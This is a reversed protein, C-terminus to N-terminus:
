QRGADEGMAASQAASAYKLLQRPSLPRDASGVISKTGRERSQGPSFPPIDASTISRRERHHPLQRGPHTGRPADSQRDASVGIKDRWAEKDEREWPLRYPHSVYGLGRNTRQHIHLTHLGDNLSLGAKCANCCMKHHSRKSSAAGTPIIQKEDPYWTCHMSAAKSSIVTNDGNTARLITLGLGMFQQGNDVTLADWKGGAECRAAYAEVVEIPLAAANVGRTKAEWEDGNRKLYVGNQLYIVEDYEDIGWEGLAEGFRIDPWREAIQAPPATTYVGDTEVAILQDDDIADLLRLINARCWSTLFGAITLTHARPPTKTEADYGVRQAMKGYLSNPGLKFVMQAPNKDRKLELRREYMPEIMARWPQSDDAPVWRYARLVNLSSYENNWRQSALVAQIEPSWYWGTVIPPYSVNGREDRWPLPMPKTQMFSRQEPYRGKFDVYYVTLPSSPNHADRRAEERTLDQWFGGEQMSPVNCFAAPYASNIDYGYVTERVRGGQYQEFHGGYYATKIAKHVQRNPLNEEKGGWEHRILDHRRRLYNAFAGPGYWQTIYFGNDWMLDRLGTALKELALIEVGWYRRVEAMDEWKNSGRSAKGSVITQWTPDDNALPFTATYAKVFSSAYFSVLDEIKIHATERDGNKGKIVRTISIMKKPVLTVKYLTSKDKRVWAEGSEYIKLKTSWRLSRIIMNQDYGFGYGVHFAGPFMAVTELMYDALEFFGLSQSPDTIQLPEDVRASCGFLVYHQPKGDGSLNIGEGDWAIMRRDKPRKAGRKKRSKRVRDRISDNAIQPIDADFTELESFDM